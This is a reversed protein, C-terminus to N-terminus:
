RGAKGNGAKDLTIEVDPTLDPVLGPDESLPLGPTIKSADGGESVWRVEEEDSTQSPQKIWIAASVMTFVTLLLLMFLAEIVSFARASAQQLFTGTM